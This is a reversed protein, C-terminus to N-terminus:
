NKFELWKLKEVSEGLYFSFEVFSSLKAENMKEQM